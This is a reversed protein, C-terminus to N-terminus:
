RRVLGAIEKALSRPTVKAYDGVGGDPGVPAMSARRSGVVLARRHTDGAPQPHMIELRRGTAEEGDEPARLLFAAMAEVAAELRMGVFNAVGPVPRHELLAYPGEAMDLGYARLRTTGSAVAIWAPARRAGLILTLRGDLDLTDGNPRVLDRAVLGRQAATVLESRSEEGIGDWWTQDEVDALVPEDGLAFLEERTLRPLRVGDAM